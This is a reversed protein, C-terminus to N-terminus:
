RQKTVDFSQAQLAGSRHSNRSRASKDSCSIRDHKQGRYTLRSRFVSTSILCANPTLFTVDPMGPRSPPGDAGTMPM